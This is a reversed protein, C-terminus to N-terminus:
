GRVLVAVAEIEATQPFMDLPTVAEIQYASRCLHGLDRALTAPNCSVYIIQAPTAGLLLDGVRPAIGAVPPDLIVTTRAPDHASLVDGLHASVDGAVYRERETARRRAHAVAYANEEIGIVREFLDALGKAFFGAGSYADVLLRQGSRVSARVLRLMEAAVVDNTQEFFEGGEGATIVYDGDPLARRRLETLQANVEPQSIPCVAIDVLAHSGHAYFGACGGEVHVRIRNRYEYHQPSPVIPRMPVHELRGVRRLTEEVQRAKLALQAEYALHQYACGGCRGFYPCRPEVREPAPEEISVLEADAFKKKDRVVRATIVDGAATFPVFYVKGECRAVGKGGFAVDRITLRLLPFEDM